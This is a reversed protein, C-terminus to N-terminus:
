RMITTQRRRNWNRRRILVSFPLYGEAAMAAIAVRPLDSHREYGVYRCQYAPNFKRNFLSLDDLQLRLSRNLFVRAQREVRRLGSLEVHDRALERLPRLQAVLEQDRERGGM